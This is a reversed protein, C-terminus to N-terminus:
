IITVDLGATKDFLLLYVNVAFSRLRTQRLVHSRFFVQDAKKHTQKIWSLIKFMLFLVVFVFAVQLSEMKPGGEQRCFRTLEM